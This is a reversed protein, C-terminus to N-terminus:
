RSSNYSGLRQRARAQAVAAGERDASGAALAQRYQSIAATAADDGPVLDIRIESPPLAEVLSVLQVASRYAESVSRGHTRMLDSPLDTVIVDWMGVTRTSATLHASFRRM